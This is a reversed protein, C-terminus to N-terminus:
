NEKELILMIGAGNELFLTGDAYKAASNDDTQASVIKWGSKVSLKGNFDDLGNNVLLVATRNADFVHESESVFPSGTSVLLEKPCIMSYIKWADTDYLGATNYLINELSFGLTCVTGKGYRNRFFCPNGEEDKALVEAGISRFKVKVGQPLKVKFNGFDYTMSGSSERRSVVEAGCVDNLRTLYTDDWALYLTAGNRVKELLAEWRRTTLFARGRASPIFYVSADRIPAEPSQYEPIIGAQRALIYSSHVLDRNAALFLADTKAEPLKEFELSDMFKVFESMKKMGPHAKRSSSFVGHELGPERWDYPAIDFNEQDFACWWLMGLCDTSWLNWLLGRQYRALGEYSVASPRWLGTEEIFSPKGTIQRMASCPGSCYLMNRIGNFEEIGAKSWMNYPHLTIYDSFDANIQSVWPGEASTVNLGNIGIIPRSPDALRFVSHIYRIWAEFGEPGNVDGLCNTENGSEWAWIANHHKMRRVFYDIYRAEWKLAVPNHYLDLMELARPIFLRFTMQGTLICVILKINYKEAIDCFQEFREMMKEDVGAYGAPTEPCYEETEFMRTDKTKNYSNGAAHIEVIPQFDNWTPFVRLVTMGHEAMVKCDQEVVEPDWKRWMQTAAHSAWYNAGILIKGQKLM